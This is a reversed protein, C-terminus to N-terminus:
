RREMRALGETPVLAKDVRTTRREDVQKFGLREYLRRAAEDEVAVDLAVGLGLQEAGAMVRELLATGFGRGRHEPPVALASVFLTERHVPAILSNLIRGRRALDAAHRAGVARALTVGTGLALSGYRRGPFATVLGAMVGGHDIALAWRHGWVTRDSRFAAEAARRATLRDGLVAELSPAALLVLSAGSYAGAATPRRLRV